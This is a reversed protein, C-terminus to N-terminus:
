VCGNVNYKDLVEILESADERSEGTQTEITGPGGYRANVLVTNANEITTEIAECTSVGNEINLKAALLQAALQDYATIDDNNNNDNGEAGELIGKTDNENDSIDFKVPVRFNGLNFSWEDDDNNDDDEAAKELLDQTIGNENEM